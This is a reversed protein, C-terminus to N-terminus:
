LITNALDLSSNQLLKKAKLLGYDSYLDIFSPYIYDGKLDKIIAGEPIEAISNAELIEDNQIILIGNKIEKEPSIILNANIFAYHNDRNDEVGNLPFGEQSKSSYSVFLM